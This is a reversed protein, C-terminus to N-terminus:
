CLRAGPPITQQSCDLKCRLPSSGWISTHSCWSHKKEKWASEAKNTEIGRDGDEEQLWKYAQTHPLPLGPPTETLSSASPEVCSSTWTWLEQCSCQAKVETFQLQGVERRQTQTCASVCSWSLVLFLAWSTKRGQTSALVFSQPRISESPFGPLVLLSM